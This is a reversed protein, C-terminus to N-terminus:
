WTVGGTEYCQKVYEAAERDRDSVHDTGQGTIHWGYQRILDLTIKQVDPPVVAKWFRAERALWIPTNAKVFQCTVDHKIIDLARTGGWLHVTEANGFIENAELQRPPSPEKMSQTPGYFTQVPTGDIHTTSTPCVTYTWGEEVAWHHLQQGPEYWGPGKLQGSPQEKLVTGTPWGRKEAFPGAIWSKMDSLVAAPNESLKLNADLPASENFGQGWRLKDQPAGDWCWKQMKRLVDARYLTCSPNIFQEHHWMGVAFDTTQIQNVFWQLWTPRLALVDTELAMLFDFDYKEVVCDLASAHFKNNKTNPIVYLDSGLRTQRLGKIAPSWPSNDVVVIKVDFGEAVPPNRILSSVCTQSWFWSHSHPIAVVIKLNRLM